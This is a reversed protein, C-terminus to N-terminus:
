KIIPLGLSARVANQFALRRTQDAWLRFHRYNQVFSKM